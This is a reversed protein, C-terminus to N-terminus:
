FHMVLGAGLGLTRNGAADPTCVLTPAFGLSLIDSYSSRSNYDDVLRNLRKTGIGKLIYGLPLEILSTAIIPSACFFWLQDWMNVAEMTILFGVSMGLGAWGIIINTNGARRQSNASKYTRYGDYGFIERVQGDSMKHGNLLLNNKCREMHGTITGEKIQHQPTTIDAKQPQEIGYVERHGGKYKVMFIDTVKKTYMPGDQNNWMQYKLETDSVEKVKVKLEDGNRLVITDQAFVTGIGMLLTVTILYLKKM